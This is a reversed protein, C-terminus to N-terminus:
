QKKAWNTMRVQKVRLQSPTVLGVERAHHAQEAHQAQEITGMLATYTTKSEDPWFYALPKLKMRVGERAIGIPTLMDRQSVNGDPTPMILTRMARCETLEIPHNAAIAEDIAEESMITKGAYMMQSTGDSMMIWRTKSEM